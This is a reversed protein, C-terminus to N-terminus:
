LSHYGRVELHKHLMCAIDYMAYIVTADSHSHREILSNIMWVAYALRPPIFLSDNSSRKMAHVWTGREMSSILFCPPFNMVVHLDSFQLKMLRESGPRAAYCIEQLSIM